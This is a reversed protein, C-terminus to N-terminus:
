QWHGTFLPELLRHRRGIRLEDFLETRAAAEASPSLDLDVEQAANRDAGVLV